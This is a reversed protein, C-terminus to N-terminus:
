QAEESGAKMTLFASHQGRGVGEEGRSPLCTESDLGSEPLTVLVEGKLRSLVHM